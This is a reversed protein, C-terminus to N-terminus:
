EQQIIFKDLIERQQSVINIGKATLYSVGSQTINGIVECIERQTFDCFSSMFFCTLARIKTHKRKYKVYINGPNQNLYKSVYAIIEEATCHRTIIRKHSYYETEPISFEIEMEMKENISEKILNLYQKRNVEYKTGILDELFSRTLVGFTDSRNLYEKLSSFPYAKVNDEYGAIDKPNNHIYASLTIMYRVNNVPTSHFREQFVPGYRDYKRNFYCAYCFNIVHMIKSIDAGASDMIFHGHNDMLCYAYVKFGYKLQYKRILSFYKLKDGREKFLVLEKLSKVVIHYKGDEAKVRAMRPM